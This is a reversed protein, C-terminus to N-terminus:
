RSLQKITKELLEVAGNKNELNQDNYSTILSNNILNTRHACTSAAWKAELKATFVPAELAITTAMHSYVDLQSQWRTNVEDECVEDVVRCIAGSICLGTVDSDDYNRPLGDQNRAEHGTTWNFDHYLDITKELITKAEINKNTM